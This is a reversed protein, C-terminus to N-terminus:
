QNDSNLILDCEETFNVSWEQNGFQEPSSPTIYWSAEYIHEGGSAFIKGASTSIELIGRRTVSVGVIKEGIMEYLKDFIQPLGFKVGVTDLISLKELSSVWISNLGQSSPSLFFCIQVLSSYVNFCDLQGGLLKAEIFKQVKNVDNIILM